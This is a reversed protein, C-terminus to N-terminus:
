HHPHTRPSECRKVGDVESGMVRLDPDSRDRKAGFRSPLIVEFPKRSLAPIAHNLRERRRRSLGRSLGSTGGTWRAAPSPRARTWLLLESSFSLAEFM